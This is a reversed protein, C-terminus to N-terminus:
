LRTIGKLYLHGLQNILEDREMQARTVLQEYGRPSLLGFFASLMVPTPISTDFEGAVKGQDLVASVKTTLQESLDKLMDGHEKQYRKADGSRFLSTRLQIHKIFVTDYACHLIAEVKDHATVDTATVEDIEVLLHQLDRLLIAVM